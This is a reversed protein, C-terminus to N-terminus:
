SIRTHIHANFLNVLADHDSQLQNFATELANYRVFFDGTGLVQITGDNKLHIFAVSSEGSEDTSYIRKEGKAVAALQNVNVYGIVTAKGKRNTETHIAKIGDPPNGDEGWPMAEYVTEVNDRGFVQVKLRRRAGEIFTELVTSISPVKM